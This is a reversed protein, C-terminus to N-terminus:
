EEAEKPETSNWFDIVIRLKAVYTYPKPVEAQHVHIILSNKTEIVLVIVFEEGRLM